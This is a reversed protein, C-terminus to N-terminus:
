APRLNLVKGLEHAVSEGAAVNAELNLNYRKGLADVAAIADNHAAEAMLQRPTGMVAALTARTQDVKQAAAQLELAAEGTVPPRNNLMFAGIAKSVQQYTDLDETWSKGTKNEIMSAAIRVFDGLNAASRSAAEQERLLSLELRFEVEQNLSRGNMEAVSTLTEKNAESTRISVTARKIRGDATTAQM